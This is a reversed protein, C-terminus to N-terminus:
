GMMKRRVGSREVEARSVSSFSDHFDHDPM